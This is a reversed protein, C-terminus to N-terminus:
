GWLTYRCIVYTFTAIHYSGIYCVHYSIYTYAHTDPNKQKNTKQQNQEASSAAVVPRKCLDVVASSKVNANGGRVQIVVVYRTYKVM